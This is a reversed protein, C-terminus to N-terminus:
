PQVRGEKQALSQEISDALHLDGHKSLAEGLFQDFWGGYVEGSTGEGLFGGSQTSRMEKVLLTAFLGELKHAAARQKEPDGHSAQVIGHTPDTSALARAALLASSDQSQIRM